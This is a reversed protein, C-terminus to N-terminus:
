AVRGVPAKRDAHALRVANRVIGAGAEGGLSLISEPHFQVARWPRRRHEVAMVIGDAEATVALEPPMADARAHLSHYRGVTLRRSLGEFLGTGSCRIASAKGHCPEPLLGLRGGCFAVMAQLGLCVGFVPVGLDDLLALTLDTRFDAPTGPGPSMVVLDADLDRLAAAGAFGAGPEARLTVVRAGTQRFYDGILHVFSDRHDIMAVTMGAGAAADGGAAVARLPAPAAPEAGAIAAMLASAKLHIEAEEEEPISDHLLTAGARVEARGGAIRVTRLTLGTNVNGNFGLAGVAGGYWRRPLRENDEIFQMAALKPAGTVTVAWMHTLFADLGDFGPRLKGEVHDVTHILRSYMEIQRRGIVRVSGPVCIRAKDNRDVDTCMTLETEDKASNLLKRIQEHDEMPTAGRKVTGSIPCTEVRDGTVRVFMEPSAGVLYEGGGLNLFFGYPSPNAACLRRFIRSPPEPAPRSQVMGPVTEFLNGKRFERQAKRVLDAYEGPRRDARTGDAVRKGAPDGGAPEPRYPACAGDRPLGGTGAGRFAFDYRHRVAVGARRDVVILDDPLYLVLDRQDGPRELALRIPDFAFALDYGFAGYLGLHDDEETRFAALIARVAAFVGPQKSREEEFFADGAPRATAEIVTDSVDEPDLGAGRDLAARFIPLLVGGRRNLAEVRVRGGRVTVAVPPDVFGTDWRSYRGPYEFGSTFVGGRARDLSDVLAAIGSGGDVEATTRVISIGPVTGRPAFAVPPREAEPLRANRHETDLM